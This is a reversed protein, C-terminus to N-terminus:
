MRVFHLEIGCRVAIRQQFDKEARQGAQGGTQVLAMAIRANRDAVAVKLAAWVLHKFDKAPGWIVLVANGGHRAVCRLPKVDLTSVDPTWSTGLVRGVIDAAKTVPGTVFTAYKGLGSRSRAYEKMPGDKIWVRADERSLFQILVGGVNPDDIWRSYQRSRDQPTLTDWGVEAAQGYLYSVVESEVPPPLSSNM